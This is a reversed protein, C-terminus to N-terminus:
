QDGTLHSKKLSLLTTKSTVFREGEKVM